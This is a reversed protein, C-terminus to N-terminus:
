RSSQETLCVSGLPDVSYLIFVVYNIGLLVLTYCLLQFSGVTLSKPVGIFIPM